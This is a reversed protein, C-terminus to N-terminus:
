WGYPSVKNLAIYHTSANDDFFFFSFNWKDQIKKIKNSTKRKSKKETIDSNKKNGERKRM